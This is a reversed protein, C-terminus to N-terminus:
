FSSQGNPDFQAVRLVPRGGIIIPVFIRQTMPDIAITHTGKGIIEDGLKRFKGPTIDFISIGAKSAVFLVDIHLATNQDLKVIDPGGELRTTRPDTPIVKMATPDGLDVRVLNEFLTRGANTPAVDTCAIYGTHQSTDIAFGHPTSCTVPLDIENVVQMTVADLQFLEGTGAPPLFFPDVINGDPLVQSTVYIFGNDYQIHGVDHGFKPIFKGSHGPSTDAILPLKDAPRVEEGPILDMNGLNIYQILKDDDADIVAVNENKRDANLDVDPHAPTGPDSVFLRRQDPDYVMADPSENDQLQITATVKLTHPDIEAIYNDQADAAFVKDLQPVYVMGAVQPVPIRGVVTNLKTNVVIIHGDFPGDRKSDFQAHAQVLLDPNPGSHAVFLLQLNPDFAQFDFHDFDQAVGPALAKPDDGSALLAEEAPSPIASPLPIDQVLILRHAPPPVVFQYVIQVLLYGLLGFCIIGTLLTFVRGLGSRKAPSTAQAHAAM